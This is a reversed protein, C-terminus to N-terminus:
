FGEFKAQLPDIEEKEKLSDKYWRNMNFDKKNALDKDIKQDIPSGTKMYIYFLEKYPTNLRDIRGAAQTMAKYSWNKSFFVITDTKVCNWGEAGSTYQVLYAWSDTDPIEDHRHGNYQAYRIGENKCMQVLVELEHDFNYFIIIRPHKEFLYRLMNIKDPNDNCVRRQCAYFQAANEIPTENYPDWHENSVLSYLDRDYSCIVESHCKKPRIIEENIMEVLLNAKHRQLIDVNIYSRVQPFKVFQNFIVHKNYFDSRNKYLGNALFLPIYDMWNDGPTATLMIWRNKKAIKVFSNAWKGAGVARQEDFIFFQNEINLYKEINNWSDIVINELNMNLKRAESLWEGDNRKKPTTIIILYKTKEKQIYYSLATLSKGTGVGAYLVKGSDLREIAKKQYGYLETQTTNQTHAIM